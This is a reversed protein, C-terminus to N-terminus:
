IAKATLAGRTKFKGGMSDMRTILHDFAHWIRMSEEKKLKKLNSESLNYDELTV